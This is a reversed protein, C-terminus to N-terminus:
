NGAINVVIDDTGPAGAEYVGNPGLSVLCPVQCGTVMTAPDIFYLYPRGLRNFAVGANNQWVYYNGDPIREFPDGVGMLLQTTGMAPSGGGVATINKGVWVRAVDLERLYPGRWGTGSAKDFPLIPNTGDNPAIFLQAFSAPHPTEISNDASFPGEKPWYGTDARFRQISGAIQDIEGRLLASQSDTRVSSLSQVGIGAVAAMIALVVLLEILTFGSQASATTPYTRCRM